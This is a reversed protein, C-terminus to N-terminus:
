GRHPSHPTIVLLDLYTNAGTMLVFGVGVNAHTNIRKEARAIERLRKISGIFRHECIAAEIRMLLTEPKLFHKTWPVAVLDFDRTMSGHVAIAYGARKAVIRIVPLIESYHRKIERKTRHRRHKPTYSM